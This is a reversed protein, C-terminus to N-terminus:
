KSAGVPTYQFYSIALRMSDLSDNYLSDKKSLSTEEGTASRLSMILETFRPNIQLLGRDDEIFAKLVSLMRRHETNFSVPIVRMFREIPTYPNQKKLQAIHENFDRREGLMSKLSAIFEPNAADVRVTYVKHYRKMLAVVHHLVQDYDPRSFEESYLVQIKGEQAQLVTVAFNSSGGFACDIGICHRATPNYDKDPDYLRGLENVAKDIALQSFLNGIQGQYKCEYERAFSPSQRARAIEERSYIKDLGVTYDMVFRKYMSPEEQEMQQLLGDPSGPTSIMLIYPDSKATYRETVDRLIAREGPQFFELEDILILKLDMRSRMADLHNSPYANIQCGNLTVSTAKSDFTIGHSLFLSKIKDILGVALNINPGVIVAMEKGQMANDKLCLWAM